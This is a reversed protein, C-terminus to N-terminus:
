CIYQKHVTNCKIIFEQIQMFMVGLLLGAPYRVAPYVWIQEIGCLDCLRKQQVVQAFPKSLQSCCSHLQLGFMEIQLGLEFLSSQWMTLISATRDTM